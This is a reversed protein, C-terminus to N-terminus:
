GYLIKNPVESHYLVTVSASNPRKENEKVAAADAERKTDYCANGGITVVVHQRLFAKGRPNKEKIQKELEKAQALTDLDQFTWGGPVEAAQYILRYEGAKENSM